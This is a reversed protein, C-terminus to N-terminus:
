VLDAFRQEVRRFYFLGAVFAIVAVCSSIFISVIDVGSSGLIAWRFGEVVGTMPNVALIVRFHGHVISAPYAVPTAYLWVQTLFPVVYRVDRYQVNLASLWIGVALASTMALIVFLPLLLLSVTPNIGYFAMLGILLLFALAFDILGALSAAIPVVLRPFYVKSILNANEVLSSSSQVLAYAFLTWPLLAAYAFIPYPSGDSPIKAFHGFIVTFIIMTLAPQLIAWSAGLATQKYRVKIDRWTLFYLLARYRWLDYLKLRAWGSTPRIVNWGIDLGEDVEGVLASSVFESPSKGLSKDEVSSV